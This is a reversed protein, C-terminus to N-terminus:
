YCYEFLLNLFETSPQKKNIPLVITKRLIVFNRLAIMRGIYKNYQDRHSCVATAIEITSHNRIYAVTLGGWNPDSIFHKVEVGMDEAFQLVVKEDIIDNSNM